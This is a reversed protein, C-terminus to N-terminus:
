SLVAAPGGGTAGLAERAQEQINASQRDQQMRAMQNASAAGAELTDAKQMARARDATM